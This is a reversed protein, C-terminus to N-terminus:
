QVDRTKLCRTITFYRVPICHRILANGILFLLNTGTEARTVSHLRISHLHLSAGRLKSKSVLCKEVDDLDARPAVWGICHTGLEKGPTHLQGNVEM